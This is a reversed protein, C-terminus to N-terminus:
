TRDGSRLRLQRRQDLQRRVGSVALALAMALVAIAGIIRRLDLGAGEAGPLAILPSETAAVLIEHATLWATAKVSLSPLIGAGLTLLLPLGMILLLQDDDSFLDSANRGQQKPPRQGSGPQQQM